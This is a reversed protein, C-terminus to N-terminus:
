HCNPVSVDGWRAGVSIFCVRCAGAPWRQRERDVAAAAPHVWCCGCGAPCSPPAATAAAAAGWCLELAVRLMTDQLAPRTGVTANKPRLSGSSVTTLSCTRSPTNHQTSLSSSCCFSPRLLVGRMRMCTGAPARLVPTVVAKSVVHWYRCFGRHKPPWAVM